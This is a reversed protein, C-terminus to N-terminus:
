NRASTERRAQRFFDVLAKLAPRSQRRSPHYLFFGALPPPAWDDLVTVLRGEALEPAVYDLPSQHLGVGQIASRIALKRENVIMRGEV